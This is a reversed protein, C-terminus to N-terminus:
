CHPIEKWARSFVRIGLIRSLCEIGQVSPLHPSGRLPGLSGSSGPVAERPITHRSMYTQPGLPCRGPKLENHPAGHQHSLLLCRCIRVVGWGGLGKESFFYCRDPVRSLRHVQTGGDRSGPPSACTHVYHGLVPRSDIEVARCMVLELGCPM